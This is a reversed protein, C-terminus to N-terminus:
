RPKPPLDLADLNSIDIRFKSSRVWWEDCARAVERWKEPYVTSPSCLSTANVSHGWLRAAHNALDMWLLASLDVTFFHHRDILSTAKPRPHGGMECHDSYEKVSFADNARRRMESPKFMRKLDKPSAKLWKSCENSDISFLYILYETEILQRVLCSGSYLNRQNFLESAGDLLDSSIRLAIGLARREDATRPMGMVWVRESLENLSKRIMDVHAKAGDVDAGSDLIKKLTASMDSNLAYRKVPGAVLVRL